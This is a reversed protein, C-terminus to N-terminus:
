DEEQEITDDEAGEYVVDIDADDDDDFDSVITDKSDYDGVRVQRVQSPKTWSDEDTIMFEGNDMDMDGNLIADWHETRSTDQNIQETMSPNFGAEMLMKDRFQQSKKEEKLVTKFSNTIVTTFYSFPNDSFLENFQLGVLVLQLNAHSVMDDIYSYGKTNHKYSVRRSQLLYAAALERVIQGHTTSFEEKKNHHSKAVIQVTGDIIAYHVYPPFNLRMKYDSTKKEKGSVEKEKEPIHKYTYVRLVLQDDTYDVEEPLEQVRKRNSFYLERNYKGLKARKKIEDTFVGNFEIIKGKIYAYDEDTLYHLDEDKLSSSRTQLQERRKANIIQLMLQTRAEEYTDTGCLIIDYDKYKTTKYNGDVYWTYTAKSEHISKLMDKTNLYNTSMTNKISRFIKYNYILKIM